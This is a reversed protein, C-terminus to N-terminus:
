LGFYGARLKENISQDFFSIAPLTKAPTIFNQWFLEFQELHPDRTQNKKLDFGFEIPQHDAIRCLGKVVWDYNEFKGGLEVGMQDREFLPTYCKQVFNPSFKLFDNVFGRLSVTLAQEKHYINWEVNARIQGFDAKLHSKLLKGQHFQCDGVLNNLFQGQLTASETQFQVQSNLSKLLDKGTLNLSLQGTADLGKIEKVRSLQSLHGENIQFHDVKLNQVKLDKLDCGFKANLKGKKIEVAKVEPYFPMLLQQLFDAEDETFNFIQAYFRHQKVESPDVTCRFRAEEKFQNKMKVELNGKLMKLFGSGQLTLLSHRDGCTVNGELNLQLPMNPSLTIKGLMDNSKLIEIQNKQYLIQAGYPITVEGQSLDAWHGMVEKLSLNHCNQPIKGTVLEIDAKPIIVSLLTKRDDLHVQDLRMKTELIPMRNPEITVKIHGDLNGKSLNLSRDEKSLSSTWFNLVDQLESLHGEKIQLDVISESEESSFTVDYISNKQVFQASLRAQNPSIQSYPVNFKFNQALVQYNSSCDVLELQGGKAHVSGYVSFWGGKSIWQLLSPKFQDTKVVCVKPKELNLNASLTRHIWDIQYDISLSEAELYFGGSKHAQNKLGM